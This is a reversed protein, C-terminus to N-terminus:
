DSSEVTAGVRRRRRRGLATILVVGCLILTTAILTTRGFPESLILWGLFVAVIPNVYAYTGVKAPTSVQLLWMYASFAVISGFAILYLLALLSKASFERPDIGSWEGTAAGVILLLAGGALMEIATAMGQNRPLEATRSYLSGCAWSFSAFLLLGAGLPKIATEAAGTSPAVLVYVGAFGILLGLVDFWNPRTGTPRLASLVVLWMPVIAVLLAAIGSHVMTEAWVVAGNGGLLMLGGVITASCWHRPTPRGSRGRFWAYMVAGAVAFRTGAMTFPPLTQVAIRIALYTSGWIIYVAAFALAVAPTSPEPRPSVPEATMGIGSTANFCCDVKCTESYECRRNYIASRDAVVRGNLGALLLM